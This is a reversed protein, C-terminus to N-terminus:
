KVVLMGAQPLKNGGAGKSLSTVQLPILVEFSNSFEGIYTANSNELWNTVELLHCDKLKKKSASSLSSIQCKFFFMEPIFLCFCTKINLMRYHM